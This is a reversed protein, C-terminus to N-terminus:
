PKFEYLYLVKNNLERDYFLTLTQVLNSVNQFVLVYHQERLLDLTRPGTIDDNSILLLSKRETTNIYFRPQWITAIENVKVLEHAYFRDKPFAWDSYPNIGETCNLIVKQNKYKRHIFQAVAIKGNGAPRLAVCIIGAVNYISLIVVVMLSVVKFVGTHRAIQQYSLVLVIPILNALPFLFRLEKHPIIAHVVLFPIVAWFIPDNFKKFVLLILGAFLFIGIPGPSFIIYFIVEYWPLIGYQSAVDQILNVQFYNYLTFCFEGYLWYDITFGIMLVALIVLATKLLFVVDRGSMFFFWLFLGFVLIASQYRFLIAVGSVLGLLYALNKVKGRMDQKIIALSLLIFLGSWSESSFRVNIYPLFWILYSSLVYICRYKFEVEHIYSRIFFRIIFISGVATVARLFFAFAYPDNCGFWSALRMLIYCVAPQIGSRIKANFEWALDSEPTRGMKYNAFEVIQFHEDANNYGSSNYAVFLYIMLM